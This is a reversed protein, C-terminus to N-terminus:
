TVFLGTLSMDICEAIIQADYVFSGFMRQFWPCYVVADITVIKNRLLMAFSRVVTKCVLDTKAFINGM